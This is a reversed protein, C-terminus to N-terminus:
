RPIEGEPNVDIHAGAHQYKAKRAFILAGDIEVDLQSSATDIWDQNFVRSAEFKWVGVAGEVYMQTGNNQPTDLLYQVIGPKLANDVTIDTEVWNKVSEERWCSLM